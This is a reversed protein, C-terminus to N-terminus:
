GSRSSVSIQRAKADKDSTAFKRESGVKVRVDWPHLENACAFERLNNNNSDDSSIITIVHGENSSRGHDLSSMRM